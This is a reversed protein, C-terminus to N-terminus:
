LALYRIDSLLKVLHTMFRGADGGNIARHDYSLAMPLLLRPVFESGDWVPKIQSKSVGLIGVEPANVIPTFGNGGIAGLSSLTFCGGQMEAPKLKGDRAKGALLSIEASIDWIGKENVDRIVPVMLGRPTDVAMGVHCYHKQILSQGDAALSRNFEPNAELAAAIAKILFAVPTVRVGRKEGEAKLGKRFAELETIDADDFQTVHPVNLWNRQMNAATLRQIKSMSLEEIKGFQSFDIAPVVPIGSGGNASAAPADKNKMVQKVFNSVDDKLIRGRPGTGQVQSLSVGLERAILRVAPGAYLSAGDTAAVPQVAVSAPQAPQGPASQISDAASTVKAAAAAAPAAKAVPKENEPEAVVPASEQAVPASQQDIPAAAEGAVEFLAVADGTGLKAGEAVLIKLVKGSHTSPVDMTAKDSELVVLTDGEAVEDGVAISIEILEVKDDSGIDPILILQEVSSSAAAEVPSVKAETEEVVEAIVEAAPEHVVQEIDEVEPTEATAEGAVEIEAIPDGVKVTAGEAVLYKVLAGAAPSPIDMTAKDSELVLLSDEVEISDGPSLGLEIVEVTEAGGLDPVVITQITM